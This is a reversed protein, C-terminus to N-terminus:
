AKKDVLSEAAEIDNRPAQPTQQAIEQAMEVRMRAVLALMTQPSSAEKLALQHVIATPSHQIRM